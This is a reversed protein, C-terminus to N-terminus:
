PRCGIGRMTEFYDYDPYVKSKPGFYRPTTIKYMFPDEITDINLALEEPHPLLGQSLAFVEPNYTQKFWSPINLMVEPSTLFDIDFFFLEIIKDFDIKEIFFPDVFSAEKREGKNRAMSVGDNHIESLFNLVDYLLLYHYDNLYYIEPRDLRQLMDRLTEVALRPPFVKGAAPFSEVFTEKSLAGNPDPDSRMDSIIDGAFSLGERLIAQFVADPKEAFRLM